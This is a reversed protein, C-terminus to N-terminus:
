AKIADFHMLLRILVFRTDKMITQRPLSIIFTVPPPSSTMHM